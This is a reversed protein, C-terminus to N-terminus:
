LDSGQQETLLLLGILPRCGTLPLCGILPLSCNLPQFTPLKSIWLQQAQLQEQLTWCHILSTGFREGELSPVQARLPVKSGEPRLPHTPDSGPSWNSSIWPVVRATASKSSSTASHRSEPSMASSTSLKAADRGLPSESWLRGWM